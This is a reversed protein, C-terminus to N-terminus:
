NNPVNLLKDAQKFAEKYAENRTDHRKNLEHNCIAKWYFENDYPIKYNGGKINDYFKKFQKKNKGTVMIM